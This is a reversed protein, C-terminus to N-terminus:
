ALAKDKPNLESKGKTYLSAAEHQLGKAQRQIAHGRDVLAAKQSSLATEVESKLSEVERVAKLMSDLEQQFKARLEQLREAFKDAGMPVTFHPPSQSSQSARGQENVCSDKSKAGRDIPEQLAEGNDIQPSKGTTRIGQEGTLQSISPPSLAPSVDSLFKDIEDLAYPTNSAISRSRPLLPDSDVPTPSRSRLSHDIADSLLWAEMFDDQSPSHEIGSNHDLVSTTCESAPSKQRRKLRKTSRQSGPRTHRDEFLEDM